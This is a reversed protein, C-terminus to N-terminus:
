ARILLKQRATLDKHFDPPAMLEDPDNSVIRKLIASQEPKGPVIAREESDKLKAFAGEPTDLRLDAERKKADFGHCAFCTNSFIPRIHANFTVHEPLPEGVVAAAPKSVAAVTSKQECGSHLSVALIAFCATWKLDLPRLRRTSGGIEHLGADGEHSFDFPTLGAARM